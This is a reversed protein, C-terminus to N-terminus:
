KEILKPLHKLVEFPFEQKDFFLPRIERITEAFPFNGSIDKIEGTAFSVFVYPKDNKYVFYVPGRGAYSRASDCYRSSWPSQDTNGSFIGRSLVQIMKADVAKYLILNGRYSVTKPQLYESLGPIRNATELSFEHRDFFLPRIERIIDASPFDLYIDKMERAAFSVFVYPKDWKYVFYIPGKKVCRCAFKLDCTRWDSQNKNKATIGRSLLQVELANVAKYLVLNGHCGVVVPLTNELLDPIRNMIGLPFKQRNSFLPRIERIIKASPFNRYIDKMEKIAFSVFVYPKDNKYVFYVPGRNAYSCASGCYRSFWSSQDRKRSFIGRSLLQIVLADVTKYLILNGRRSVIKPRLYKLLEPIRNMIELPFEQRDSFLPRIKEITEAPPFNLYINGMEGTAFSVFVYPKGKKYVFYVPGREAYSHASDCYRSFWSSQHKDYKSFTGRNLLKGRGLLLITRADVVKYLVLDGCRSIIKPQLYESLQPIQNVIELPFEQRDSFLPRIKQITKFSPFHSYINGVERMAFSVIVYPKGKRYM